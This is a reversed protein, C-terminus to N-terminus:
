RSNDFVEHIIQWAREKESLKPKSLQWANTKIRVKVDMLYQLWDLDRISTITATHPLVFCEIGNKRLENTYASMRRKISEQIDHSTKPNETATALIAELEAKDRLQKFTKPEFDDENAFVMKYSPISIFPDKEKKGLNGTIHKSEPISLLIERWNWTKVEQVLVADGISISNDFLVMCENENNPVRIYLSKDRHAKSYRRWDKDSMFVVNIYAHNYNDFRYFLKQIKRDMCRECKRWLKCFHPVSKMGGNLPNIERTWAGCYRENAAKYDPGGDLNISGEEVVGPLQKIM